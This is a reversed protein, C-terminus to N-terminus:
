RQLQALTVSDKEKELEIRRAYVTGSSQLEGALDIQMGNSLRKCPGKTFETNSDTVVVYRGATFSLAPCTGSLGSV